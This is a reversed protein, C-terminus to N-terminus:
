PPLTRAVVWGYVEFAGARKLIKAIEDLTAGTTLVDDIVAVRQGTLDADCVFAGRINKRREDWPLAAQPAGDRVRRCIRVALPIRASRSVVRAIELAQNFGRQRLRTRSLPLPVILDAGASSIGAALMQAFLTALALTGHYKYSRILEALPYAYVCAAAVRDFRPLRRLCAGCLAGGPTPLACRPCHAAVFWPLQRYCADCLADRGAAACLLCQQPLACRNLIMDGFNSLLPALASSARPFNM